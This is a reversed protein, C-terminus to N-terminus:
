PADPFAADLQSPGVLSIGGALPGNSDYLFQEVSRVYVVADPEGPAGTDLTIKLGGTYAGSTVVGVTAIKVGTLDVIDADGTGGDIGTTDGTAAEVVALDDGGGLMVSDNGTGTNVTDRGEGTVVTDNGAGALILDDGSGTSISDNGKGTVVTDNGGGTTITDNGDGTQIAVTKSGTVRNNGDGLVVVGSFRSLKLDVDPDSEDNTFMVANLGGLIDSRLESLDITRAGSPLDFTLVDTGPKVGKLSSEVTPTSDAHSQRTESTIPASVSALRRAGDNDNRLFNGLAAAIAPDLGLGAGFASKQVDYNASPLPM